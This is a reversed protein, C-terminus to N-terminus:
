SQVRQTIPRYAQFAYVLIGIALPWALWNSAPYGGDSFFLSAAHALTLIVLGLHVRFGM